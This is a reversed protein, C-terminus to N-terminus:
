TNKYGYLRCKKDVFHISKITWVRAGAKYKHQNNKYDVCVKLTPQKLYIIGNKAQTWHGGATAVLVSSHIKKKSQIRTTTFPYDFVRWKGPAIRVSQAYGGVHIYLNHSTDNVVRAKEIAAFGIQVECLLLLGCFLIGKNKPM